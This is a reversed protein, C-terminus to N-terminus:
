DLTSPLLTRKRDNEPVTSDDHRAELCHRYIENMRRAREPWSERAAHATAAVSLSRRLLPSAALRAIGDALGAVTAEPTGVPIKIVADDPLMAGVGQHDLTLIPLGAAMAEIVVSGFADSLSTFLFADSQAFLGAMTPRPVMGIFRVCSDLGLTRVLREYRAREPGDGAVTLRIPRYRVRALAELALPLAKRHELRGAWLLKLRGNERFATRPPAIQDPPIGNDLFLEIHRAGASELLAATERNTALVAASHRAANRLGPLFPSALLRVRRFAEKVTGKPGLYRAFSLPASQGGGLPGWVFPADLRWLMPPAGITSWSVHHVLDFRYIAHLRAAEQFARRQWLLYHLHLGHEGRSRDWPDWGDGLDVWEMAIDPAGPRSLAATVADRHQPFAIVRVDHWAAMHRAWNWTLGPESGLDPGCAHGVILVKLRRTAAGANDRIKPSSM